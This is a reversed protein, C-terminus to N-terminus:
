RLRGVVKMPLYLLFGIVCGELAIVAGGWRKVQSRGRLEGVYRQKSAVM